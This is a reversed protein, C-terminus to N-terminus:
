LGTRYKIGIQFTRKRTRGKEHTKLYEELM